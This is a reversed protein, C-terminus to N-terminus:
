KLPRLLQGYPMIQYTYQNANTVGAEILANRAQKENPFFGMVKHEPTFLVCVQEQKLVAEACDMDCFTSYFKIVDKSCMLRESQIKNLLVLGELTTVRSLAVYLQGDDFVLPKVNVKDFTQGQSKHISMAYALKLPIQKCTGVVKKHLVQVPKNKHDYECKGEKDTKDKLEYSYKEWTHEEIGCTNGNDFEVEVYDPELAVVTGLSGNQYMGDTDNILSMVRAGVKLRLEKDALCDQPKFDKKYEAFYRKTPTTLQSLKNYNMTDVDKNKSCLTIGDDQPTDVRANFYQICQANGVRALNLQAVFAKDKQRVVKKLCVNEFGFDKWYQSEFAYFKESQYKTNLIKLEDGVVVPPLQFFDGIVIVQKPKAKVVGKVKDFKVEEAKIITKAVYDFLDVRCMSIEDIIIIDANKVVKPVTLPDEILPGTSRIGFAKHLTVGKVNIAAIGTPATILVNKKNDECWKVFENTVFSKGTGAEGTLFVNKGDKMANFAKRQDRTFGM